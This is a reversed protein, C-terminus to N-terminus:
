YGRFHQSPVTPSLSAPIADNRGFSIVLGHLIIHQPKEGLSV